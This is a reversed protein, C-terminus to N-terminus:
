RDQSGSTPDALAARGAESLRLRRDDGDVREEVLGKDLLRRAQGDWLAFRYEGDADEAHPWKGTRSDFRPTFGDAILRLVRLDDEAFPDAMRDWYGM